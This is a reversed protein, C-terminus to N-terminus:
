ARIVDSEAVSHERDGPQGLRADDAARTVDRWGRSVGQGVAVEASSRGTERVLDHTRTVKRVFNRTDLERGWTAEYVRQLVVDVRDHREAAAFLGWTRRRSTSSNTHRRAPERKPSGPHRPALAAGQAVTGVRAAAEARHPVAPVM